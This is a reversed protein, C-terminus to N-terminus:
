MFTAAAAAAAVANAKNIRIALVWIIMADHFSDLQQVDIYLCGDRVRLSYAMRVSQNMKYLVYINNPARIVYYKTQQVPRIDNVRSYM